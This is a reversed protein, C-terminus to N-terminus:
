ENEKHFWRDSMEWLGNGTSSQSYLDPRTTYARIVAEEGQMIENASVEIKVVFAVKKSEVGQVISVVRLRAGKPIEGLLRSYRNNVHGSETSPYLSYYAEAGKFFEKSYRDKPHRYVNFSTKTVYVTGIIGLYEEPNDSLAESYNLCGCPGVVSVCLLITTWILKKM